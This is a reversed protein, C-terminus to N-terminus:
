GVMFALLLFSDASSDEKNNGFLRHILISVFQELITNIHVPYIIRSLVPKREGCQDNDASQQYM